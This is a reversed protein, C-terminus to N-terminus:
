DQSASDNLSAAISPIGAGNARSTCVRDIPRLLLQRQSFSGSSRVDSPGEAGLRVSGSQVYSNHVQVHYCM